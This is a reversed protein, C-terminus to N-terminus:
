GESQIFPNETNGPVFGKECLLSDVKKCTYIYCAHIISSKM